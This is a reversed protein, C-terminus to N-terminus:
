VREGASWGSVSGHPHCTLCASHAALRVEIVRRVHVKGTLNKSLQVPRRSSCGCPPVLEPHDGRSASQLLEAAVILQAAQGNPSDLLDAFEHQVRASTAPALLSYVYLLAADYGYPAIGWGEWDMIVPGDATLNALHM